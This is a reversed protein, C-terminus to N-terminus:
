ATVMLKAPEVTVTLLSKALSHVQDLQDPQRAACHIELIVLAVRVTSAAVGGDGRLIAPLLDTADGILTKGSGGILPGAIDGIQKLIDTASGGGKLLMIIKALMEAPNQALKGGGIKLVSWLMGGISAIAGLIGTATLGTTAATGEAAGYAVPVANGMALAVCGALGVAFVMTTVQYKM